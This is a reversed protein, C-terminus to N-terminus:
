KETYLYFPSSPHGLEKEKGRTKNPSVIEDKSAEIYTALQGKSLGVTEKGSVNETIKKKGKNNRQDQETTAGGETVKCREHVTKDM